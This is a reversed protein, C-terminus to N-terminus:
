GEGRASGAGPILEANGTFGAQRAAELELEDLTRAAGLRAPDAKLPGYYSVHHAGLRRLCAEVPEALTTATGLHAIVLLDYHRQWDGREDAHAHGFRERLHEVFGREGDPEAAGPAPRRKLTIQEDTLGVEHLGAVIADGRSAGEHFCANVQVPRRAQVSEVM